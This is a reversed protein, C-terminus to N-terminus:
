QPVTSDVTLEKAYEKLWEVQYDELNFEVWDLLLSVRKAKAIELFSDTSIAFYMIESGITVSHYTDKGTEGADFITGDAVVYLHPKQDEVSWRSGSLGLLVRAPKIRTNGKWTAVLQLRM